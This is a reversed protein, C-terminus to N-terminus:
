FFAGPSNGSGSAPYSQVWDGYLSWSYLGSTSNAAVAISENAYWALSDYMTGIIADDAYFDALAETIHFAGYGWGPDARASGSGYWPACDPVSGAADAPPAADWAQADAIDRLYKIHLAATDFNLMEARAVLWADGLWARRERTADSVPGDMLNSLFSMRTARQIANLADSSSVFSGAEDVTSHVFTASLASPPPVGPYGAVQVYRLGFYVFQLRYVETASADGACLYTAMLKTGYEWYNNYVTGNRHLTEAAFLSINTGAPCDNVRLTLVAAGNQAFDIVYQAGGLPNTV